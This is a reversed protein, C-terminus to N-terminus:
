FLLNLKSIAIIVLLLILDYVLYRPSKNTNKFKAGAIKSYKYIQQDLQEYRKEIDLRPEYFEQTFEDINGYKSIVDGFLYVNKDFKFEIKPIFSRVSHYLSSETTIFWAVLLMYMIIDYSIYGM